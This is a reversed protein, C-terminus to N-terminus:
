RTFRNPLGTEPNIADPDREDRTQLYQLGLQAALPLLTMWGMGRRTKAAGAGLMPLISAAADGIDFGEQGPAALSNNLLAGGLGALAM